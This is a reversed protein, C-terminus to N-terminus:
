SLINLIKNFLILRKRTKMETQRIRQRAKTMNVIPRTKMTIPSKTFFLCLGVTYPYLTCRHTQLLLIKYLINLTYIGCSPQIQSSSIACKRYRISDSFSFGIQIWPESCVVPLCLYLCCQRLNIWTYGLDGGSFLLVHNSPFQYCWPLLYYM